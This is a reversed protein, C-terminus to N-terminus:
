FGKEKKTKPNPQIPNPQTSNPSPQSQPQPLLTPGLLHYSVLCLDTASLEQGKSRAKRDNNVSRKKTRVMAFVLRQLFPTHCGLYPRPLDRGIIFRSGLILLATNFPFSSLHWAWFDLKFSETRFVSPQTQLKERGLGAGNKSYYAVDFLSVPHQNNTYQWYCGRTKRRCAIVRDQQQEM